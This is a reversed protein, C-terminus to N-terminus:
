SLLPLFLVLVLCPRIIKGTPGTVQSLNCVCQMNSSGSWGELFPCTVVSYITM